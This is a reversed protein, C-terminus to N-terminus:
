LWLCSLVYVKLFQEIDDLSLDQGHQGLAYEAELAPPYPRQLSSIVDSSSVFFWASPIASPSSRCDYVM